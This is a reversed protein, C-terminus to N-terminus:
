GLSGPAKSTITNEFNCFQPCGTQLEKNFQNVQGKTAVVIPQMLNHNGASSVSGNRKSQPKGATLSYLGTYSIIQLKDTDPPHFWDAMSAMRVRIYSANEASTLQELLWFAMEMATAPSTSIVVYFGYTEFGGPITLADYEDPDINALHVDPPLRLGFSCKVPAGSGATTVRIAESGSEVSWGFM